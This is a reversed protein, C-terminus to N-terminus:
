GVLLPKSWRGPVRACRVAERVQRLDYRNGPEPACEPNSLLKMGRRFADEREAPEHRALRDPLWFGDITLARFVLEEPAVSLPARSLTGYSLFTGGDRLSRLAQTGIEGGVADVIADAGGGTRTRLRSTVPERSSDIVLDAGLARLAETHNGSRVVCACRLDSQRALLLIMRGVTSAAATQVLWQGPRLGLSDLLLVATVPNITAQCGVEDSVSDPLVLVERAPVTVYDQWTGIAPVAVRTGVRVDTHDGVADVVGAGEFGVPSPFHAQRGYHGEVFLLDSPNVPRARLRM